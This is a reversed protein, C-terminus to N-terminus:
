VLEDKKQVSLARKKNAGFAWLFCGHKMIWNSTAKNLLAKKDNIWKPMLRDREEESSNDNDSDTQTFIPQPNEEDEETAVRYRFITNRRQSNQSEAMTINPSISNRNNQM